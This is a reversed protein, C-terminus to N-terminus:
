HAQLWNTGHGVEALVPVGNPLPMAQQMHTLILEKMIEIETHHVDFVLEDHVQLIMKSQLTTQQLAAHIRIMALKIMDAASGQIPSNIANREAFGRVTFNQSNIDRLWRRRGMLTQVYGNKQAFAVTEDMYRQIGTFEKKYNDIIEKAETRSISLNEALGFAGQGYIIGFNVSKAKYRMEKTVEAEPVNYVKAATATHIDKHQRFAECMAEDGSIAAVVRLEIQSYDASMLVFAENRPIFAKRIERGQETRIPINQLNPNISSLRGTVAITQGYTTHVRGTKPNILEPLTDVYTNKLKTFERFTLIDECIPHEHALKALIDEGTAYQGTKTKKAKPDLKLKEFLVDGLQKPSALNFRVGAAEYVKEESEAALKELTISYDNLFATDIRVGEFEMNTLVRILPTDVTEFVQRVGNEELIPKFKQKLQLTIDADEGAYEAIQELAVDRMTGQQKGKKGILTEISVPKYHLYNQSLLDMSRKGEPEFCYHALMTDFLEGQPEIGYNKLVLLDFKTNQGIWLINNRQWLANLQHLQQNAEARNEPLPWYYATGVEWSFSMGVLECQNADLGTTETDFCIENVQLANALFAQQKEPTDLIHYQHPTDAITKYAELPVQSFLDPESPNSTKTPVAEGFLDTQQQTATQIEEGLIRKGITKFELEAFIERLTDKNWESLLFDEEHFTCPVNLIITALKKSMLAAEKGSRIKEGLAGKISEANALVNELNGYEKLLKVATKEGVGKIGPINDVADGMMGLIDIVQAVNDIDWKECVEKAGLIEAKNQGNAPKYIFVKDNVLQGYDKDPTVMFVQYGANAAQVSLTGIVDDAEFGDVEIIPINFGQLMKKIDPVAALIDEPTEQRNAKYDAFDTHRETPAKTDFCVALHTAKQNHMLDLLANLFGFQANTNKGNSTIRPSRVLAYYARFILAFADLLFLRKDM